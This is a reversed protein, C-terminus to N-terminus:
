RMQLAQFFTMPKRVSQGPVCAPADNMLDPCRRAGAKLRRTASRSSDNSHLLRSLPPGSPESPSSSTLESPAGDLWSTAGMETEIAPAVSACDLLWPFVDAGACTLVLEPPDASSPAGCGAAGALELESPEEDVSFAPEGEDDLSALEVPLWSSWAGMGAAAARDTGTCTGTDVGPEVTVAEDGLEDADSSEEVREDAGEVEM